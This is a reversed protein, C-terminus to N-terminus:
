CSRRRRRITNSDRRADREKACLHPKKTAIVDLPIAYNNAADWPDAASAGLRIERPMSRLNELTRDNDRPFRKESM